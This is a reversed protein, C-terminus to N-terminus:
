TTQGREWMTKLWEWMTKLEKWRAQLRRRNTGPRPRNAQNQLRIVEPSESIAGHWVYAHQSRIATEKRRVPITGAGLFGDGLHPRGSFGNDSDTYHGYQPDAFWPPM